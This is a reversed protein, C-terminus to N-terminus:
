TLERTLEILFKVAARVEHDSVEFNPQEGSTISVNNIQDVNFDLSGQWGNVTTYIRVSGQSQNLWVKEDYGSQAIYNPDGKIAPPESDPSLMASIRTGGVGVLSAKRVTCTAGRGIKDEPNISEYGISVDTIGLYDKFFKLTRDCQDRIAHDSETVSTSKSNGILGCAPILAISIIATAAFITRGSIGIM